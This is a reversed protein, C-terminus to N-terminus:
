ASLGFDMACGNKGLMSCADIFHSYDGSRICLFNPEAPGCCRQVSAASEPKSRLPRLRANEQFRERTKCARSSLTMAGPGIRNGKLARPFRLPVIGYWIIGLTLYAGFVYPLLSMPYLPVPVVSGILAFVMLGTGLAGAILKGLSLEGPM